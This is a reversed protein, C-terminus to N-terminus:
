YEYDQLGVGRGCTGSSTGCLGSVRRPATRAGDPRRHGGSVNDLLRGWSYNCRSHVLPRRGVSLAPVTRHGRRAARARGSRRPRCGARASPSRMPVAVRWYAVADTTGCRARRSAGTQGQGPPSGKVWVYAGARGERFTREHGRATIIPLRASGAPAPYGTRACSFRATLREVTQRPIPRGRHLIRQSLCQHSRPRENAREMAAGMFSFEGDPIRALDPTEAAVLPSTYDLTKRGTRSSRAGGGADRRTSPHLFRTCQASDVRVSKAM